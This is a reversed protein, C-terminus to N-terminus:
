CDPLQQLGLSAPQDTPLRCFTPLTISRYSPAGSPRDSGLASRRPAQGCLCMEIVRGASSPKEKRRQTRPSSTTPAKKEKKKGESHETYEKTGM